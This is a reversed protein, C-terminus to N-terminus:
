AASLRRRSRQHAKVGCLDEHGWLRAQPGQTRKVQPGGPYLPDGHQSVGGRGVADAIQVRHAQIDDDRMDQKYLVSERILCLGYFMSPICQYTTEPMHTRAWTVCSDLGQFSHGGFELPAGKMDQRFGDLCVEIARIHTQLDSRSAFSGLPIVQATTGGGVADLKDKLDIVFNTMQAFAGELFDCRGRLAETEARIRRGEEGGGMGQTQEMWLKVKTSRAAALSAELRIAGINLANIQDSVTGELAVLEESLSKLGGHVTCYEARAPRGGLEGQVGMIADQLTTFDLPKDGRSHSSESAEENDDRTRKTHDRLPTTFASARARAAFETLAPNPARADGREEAKILYRFLSLWGQMSNEAALVEQNDVSYEAAAKPLSPELLAQPQQSSGAGRGWGSDVIYYAGDELRDFM